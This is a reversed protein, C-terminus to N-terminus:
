KSILFLAELYVRHTLRFPESCLWGASSLIPVSLASAFFSCPLAQCRRLCVLVGLGATGAGGIGTWVDM